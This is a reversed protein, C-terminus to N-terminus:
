AQLALLAPVMDTKVKNEDVDLSACLFHKIYMHQISSNPFSHLFSHSQIPSTEFDDDNDM